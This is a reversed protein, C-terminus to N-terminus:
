ADMQEKGADIIQQLAGILKPLNTLYFRDRDLTITNDQYTLFRWEIGTTACGYICKIKDNGEAKNFVDAGVLQAACQILGSEMYQKKAETM